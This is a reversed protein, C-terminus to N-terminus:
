ESTDIEETSRNVVWSLIALALWILVLPATGTLVCLLGSLAASPGYILGVLTIGVGFLLVFFGIVLGLNTKSAYKRLDRSM